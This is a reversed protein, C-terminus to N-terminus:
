AGASDQRSPGVKLSQTRFLEEVQIFVFVLSSRRLGSSLEDAKERIEVDNLKVWLDQDTM